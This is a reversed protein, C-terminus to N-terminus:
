ILKENENENENKREKEESNMMRDTCLCELSDLHLQHIKGRGYQFTKFKKKKKLSFYNDIFSDEFAKCYSEVISAKWRPSTQVSTTM